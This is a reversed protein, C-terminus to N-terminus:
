EIFETLASAVALRVGDREGTVQGHHTLDITAM